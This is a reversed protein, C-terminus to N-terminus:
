EDAGDDFFIIFASGILDHETPASPLARCLNNSLSASGPARLEVMTEIEGVDDLRFTIMEPNTEPDRIADDIALISPFVYGLCGELQESGELVGDTGLVTVLGLQYNALNETCCAVVHFGGRLPVPDSRIAIESDDVVEFLGVEVFDCEVGEAILAECPDSKASALPVTGFLSVLAISIRIILAQLLPREIVRSKMKRRGVM